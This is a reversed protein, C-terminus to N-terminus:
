TIDEISLFHPYIAYKGRVLQFTIHYKAKEVDEENDGLISEYLTIDCSGVGNSAINIADTDAFYGGTRGFPPLSVNNPNNESIWGIESASLNADFTIKYFDQMVVIPIEIGEAAFYDKPIEGVPYVSNTEFDYGYTDIFSTLGWLTFPIANNQSYPPFLLKFTNEDKGMSQWDLISEIRVKMGEIEETTFTDEIAQSSSNTSVAQTSESSEITQTPLSVSSTDDASTCGTLAM